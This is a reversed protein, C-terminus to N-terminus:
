QQENDKITKVAFLQFAIKPFFYVIKQTLDSVLRWFFYPKYKLEAHDGKLFKLGAIGRVVYGRKQFDEVSWGSKHIQLPNNDYGEQKIYGNPTTIIVKKKAWSEAKDLLVFGESKELHEIIEACLVLDFSRPPFKVILIDEQIYEDHIHKSKSENIYDTFMEVGVKHPIDTYQILSNYGCALDLASQCGLAERKLYKSWDPFIKKYIKKIINKTM